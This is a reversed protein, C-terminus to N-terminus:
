ERKEGTPADDPFTYERRMFSDVVRLGWIEYGVNILIRRNFARPIELKGLMSGSKYYYSKVSFHDSSKIRDSSRIIDIWVDYREPPFSLMVAWLKELTEAGDKLIQRITSTQIGFLRLEKVLALSFLQEFHYANDSGQGRGPKAPKVLRRRRLYTFENHSINLLREVQGPKLITDSRGSSQTM